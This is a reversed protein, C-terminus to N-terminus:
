LAAKLDRATSFAVRKSAKIKIAEGTSPNRGKRAARKAVQFVGLHKIQVKGGKKLTKGITAIIEDMIANGHSKPMEFLSSLHDSLVAATLLPVAKKARATKPATAPLPAAVKRSGAQADAKKVMRIM